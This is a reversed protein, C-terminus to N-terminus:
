DRNERRHLWARRVLGPVVLAGAFRVQTGVVTLASVIIEVEDVFLEPQTVQAHRRPTRKSQLKVAVAVEPESCLQAFALNRIAQGVVGKSGDTIKGLSLTDGVVHLNLRQVALQLGKDAAITRRNVVQPHGIMPADVLGLIGGVDDEPALRVEPSDVLPERAGGNVGDLCLVHGGEKPALEVAIVLVLETVPKVRADFARPDFMGHSGDRELHVVFVTENQSDLRGDVVDREELVVSPYFM